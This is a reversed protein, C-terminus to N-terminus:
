AHQHEETAQKAADVDAISNCSREADEMTALGREIWGLLQLM